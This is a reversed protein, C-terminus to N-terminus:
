RKKGKGKQQRKAQPRQQPNKPKAGGAQQKSAIANEARRAAMERKDERKKKRVEEVQKSPVSTDGPPTMYNLGLKALSGVGQGILSGGPILEGVKPAYEAITSVLDYFWDGGANMHAPVGVPLSSLVQSLAALAKPDYSCSPKALVLVERESVSPFSEYIINMNVQLTTEHSLGTFIAGVDHIPYHKLARYVAYTPYTAIGSVNGTYTPVWINTNNGTGCQDDTLPIVPQMYNVSSPPNEDGVFPAVIYCGEEAKWQRTGPYLLADVTTLPPLRYATSDFFAPAQGTITQMLVGNDNIPQAQRFVTVLGQRYIDATTNIVEFGIGILRGVGKSYAPDLTLAAAFDTALNFAGPGSAKTMVNLGGVQAAPSAGTIINLQNNFFTRGVQAMTVLDLWPWLNIHADWNGSVTPAQITVSQKIIRIVSAATEQDPWGSLERLQNDHFPDLNAVLFDAGGPTM